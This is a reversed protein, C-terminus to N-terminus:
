VTSCWGFMFISWSINYKSYISRMYTSKYADFQAVSIISLVLRAIYNSRAVNAVLRYLPSTVIVPSGLQCYIVATFRDAPTSVQMDTFFPYHSLSDSFQPLTLLAGPANNWVLGNRAPQRPLRERIIQSCM